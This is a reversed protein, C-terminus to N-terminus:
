ITFLTKEFNAFKNSVQVSDYNPVQLKREGAKLCFGASVLEAAPSQSGIDLQRLFKNTVKIKHSSSIGDSGPSSNPQDTIM